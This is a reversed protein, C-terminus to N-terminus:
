QIENIIKTLINKAEELGHKWVLDAIDKCKYESSLCINSLNFKNAIQTAYIQGTNNIAKYDNDYLIYKTIYPLTEPITSENNYSYSPFGLKHLIIRDKRSKTLIINDEGFLDISYQINVDDILQHNTRWKYEKNAYPRYLKYSKNDGWEYVYCPDNTYKRYFQKTGIYVIDAPKIKFLDLDEISISYRKYWYDYDRNVEKKEISVIGEENIKTELLSLQPNTELSECFKCNDFWEWDRYTPTITFQDPKETILSNIYSKNIKRSNLLKSKDCDNDILYIPVAQNNITKFLDKYILHSVDIIIDLRNHTDYNYYGINHIKYYMAALVLYDGKFSGNFDKVVLRNKDTKYLKVSSNVTPNLYEPLYLSVLEEQSYHTEILSIIYKVSAEKKEIINSM